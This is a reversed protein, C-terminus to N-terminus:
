RARRSRRATRRALFREGASVVVAKRRVRRRRVVVAGERVRTLTGNCRDETSWLTGRTTAVSDRGHTRFRGNDDKAWLRRVSRRRKRSAVASPRPRAAHRRCSRFSGGRLVIDTLGDRARSQRIQFIGGWFTGTQSDGGDLATTLVVSGRLTNVLSGVPISEGEELVVWGRGPLKVKVLGFGPAVVVSAGLEPEAASGQGRQSPGDGPRPEGADVGPVFNSDVRRVSENNTDAILVDGDLTLGLGHPQDIEAATAPGGDGSLGNGGSGAFAVLEGNARVQLVRNSGHDAILFGGGILPEVDTPQQLDGSGSGSSDGAVTSINGSPSVKRVVNKDADAILFGGDVTPAVDDPAALRAETALGGDGDDDSGGDDGNGAVTSITGLPSVRRVVHNGTDAILFGGDRAPVAARPASLDATIALGGDGAYNSNGTGAVTTITGLPSVHRVRSNGTDAILFGGDPLAAVGEPMKLDAATALGEGNYGSNGTGAVTTITGDPAVRRIRNNATDAILFGGDRTGAVSNPEDISALTAPGGDGAFASSGDGAVTSITMTGQAGLASTGAVLGALLMLCVFPGFRRWRRGWGHPSLM